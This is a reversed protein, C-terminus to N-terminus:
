LKRTLVGWVRGLLGPRAELGKMAQARDPLALAQQQHLAQLAGQAQERWADRDQQVDALQQRLLANEAELAAMAALRPSEDSSIAPAEDTHTPTADRNMPSEDALFVVLRGRADRDHPLTNRQIRSRIAAESVGLRLAAQAVTLRTQSM